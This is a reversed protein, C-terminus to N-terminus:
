QKRTVLKAQKWFGDRKSGKLKNEEVFKSYLYEGYKGVRWQRDKCIQDFLLVLDSSGYYYRLKGKDVDARATGGLIVNYRYKLYEKGPHDSIRISYCVGYDLKLYISNTSHSDYRLVSFGNGLLFDIIESCVEHLALFNNKM